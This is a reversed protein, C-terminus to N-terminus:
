MIEKPPESETVDKLTLEYVRTKGTDPSITYKGVASGSAPIRRALIKVAHAIITEEYSGM